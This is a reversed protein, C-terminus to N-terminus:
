LSLFCLSSILLSCETGLTNLSSYWLVVPLTTYLCCFSVEWLELPRSMCSWTELNSTQHFGDQNVYLHRRTTTSPSFFSEPTKNILASIGIRPAESEHCLWRQFTGSGSQSPIGSGSEMVKPTLNGCIFKPPVYVRYELKWVNGQWQVLLASFSCWKFLYTHLFHWFVIDM